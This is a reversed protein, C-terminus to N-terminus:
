LVGNDREVLLASFIRGALSYAIAAANMNRPGPVHVFEGGAKISMNLGGLNRYLDTRWKM